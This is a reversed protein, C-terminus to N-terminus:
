GCRKAEPSRWPPSGRTPRRGPFSTPSEPRIARPRSTSCTSRGRRSSPGGAGGGPGPETTVVVDVRRGASRTAPGRARRRCRGRDRDTAARAGTGRPVRDSFRRAPERRAALRAPLQRAPDPGGPLSRDGARPRFARRSSRLAAPNPSDRAGRRRLSRWGPRAPLSRTAVVVERLEGFQEASSQSSGGTVGAALGACVAAASAFGVARVRRSVSPRRSCAAARDGGQRRGRPLLRRLARRARRRGRRGGQPRSRPPSRRSARLLRRRRGGLRRDPASRDGARRDCRRDRVPAASTRPNRRRRPDHRQRARPRQRDPQRAGPRDGHPRLAGATARWGACSSRAPRAGAVGGALPRRRLERAYAGDVVRTAPRDGGNVERDLEAVAELALGLQDGPAPAADASRALTLAQLPRRLEHLARNLRERRRAGRVREAVSVTACTLALPWAVAASDAIAELM